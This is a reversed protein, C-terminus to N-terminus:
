KLKASTDNLHDRIIQFKMIQAVDINAIGVDRRHATLIEM